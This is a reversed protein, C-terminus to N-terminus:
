VRIIIKENCRHYKQHCWVCISTLNSVDNNSHNGDIHHIDLMRVDGDFGCNSCKKNCKSIIEERKVRHNKVQYNDKWRIINLYRNKCMNDCFYIGNLSKRLQYRTRQIIKNCNSCSIDIKKSLSSEYNQKCIINCFHIKYRELHSARKYIEKKCWHCITNNEMYM